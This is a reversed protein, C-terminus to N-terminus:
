RDAEATVDDPQINQNQRFLNQPDYRRKIEVLRAYNHGYNARIQARDDDSGFNVYGGGMSTPRVATDYARVWAIADDDEAPDHWTAGIGVALNADRYAFATDDGGLRHCAGDVPFVLTASEPSPLTAGFALHGEIAAADLTRDFWGKWYHRLGFPLLDDFLTNIAPYPMRDLFRGVPPGIRALEARVEDDREEAGSWCTVVGIGPADHWAEPVFPVPPIRVFALLLGLEEPADALLALYARVVDGDLPYFSPGGLVDGVRHLRYEFSTVVGFNGGGGRLAWFLDPHADESCTLLDGDATVVDASVLNDCTLGCRRALHGFGGGLTLGAIGTTSVIGGTTALGFAHTAHNLDGWTLGPEARVTRRDPDVRVGTMPALDLVIGDDCTSYGAISHAGGRVALPLGRDRVFGVTALVDAVSSAQVIAAPHRDHIVNYVRRAGDYATEGPRVVAGRVVAALDDVGIDTRQRDAIAM